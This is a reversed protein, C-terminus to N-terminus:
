DSTKPIAYYIKRRRFSAVLIYEKEEHKSTFPINGHFDSTWRAVEMSEPLTENLAIVGTHVFETDRVALEPDTHEHINM